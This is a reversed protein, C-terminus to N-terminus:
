QRDEYVYPPAPPCFVERAENNEIIQNASGVTLVDRRSLMIPRWSRCVADRTLLETESGSTLSRISACSTLAPIALVCLMLKMPLRM